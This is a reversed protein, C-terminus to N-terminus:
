KANEQKLLDRVAVRQDYVKKQLPNIVLGQSEALKAKNSRYIRVSLPVGVFSVFIAGGVAMQWLRQVPPGSYTRRYWVKESGSASMFVFKLGILQCTLESRGQTIIVGFVPSSRISTLGKRGTM